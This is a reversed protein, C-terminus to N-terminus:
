ESVVIGVVSQRHGVGSGVAKGVNRVLDGEISDSTWCAVILDLEKLQEVDRLCEKTDSIEVSFGEAELLRGFRKSTLQPEHGDWGGQFILVQKM